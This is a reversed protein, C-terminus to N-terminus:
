IKVIFIPFNTLVIADGILPPPHLVRSSIVGVIYLLGPFMHFPSCWWYGSPVHCKFGCPSAGEYRNPYVNEFNFHKFFGVVFM